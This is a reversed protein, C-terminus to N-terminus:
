QVDPIHLPPTPLPPNQPILSPIAVSTTSPNFGPSWTTIPAVVGLASVAWVEDFGSAPPPNRRRHCGDDMEVRHRFRITGAIDFDVGNAASTLALGDGAPDLVYLSAPTLVARAPLNGDPAQGGVVVPLFLAVLTSCTARAAPALM